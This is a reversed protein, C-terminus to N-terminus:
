CSATILLEAAIILFSLEQYWFQFTSLAIKLLRLVFCSGLLIFIFLPHIPKVIVTKRYQQKFLGSPTRLTRNPHWSSLTLVAEQQAVFDVFHQFSASRWEWIWEVRRHVYFQTIEEQMKIRRRNENRQTIVPIVLKDQTARSINGLKWYSYRPECSSRHSVWYVLM